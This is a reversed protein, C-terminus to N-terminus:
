ALKRLTQDLTDGEAKKGLPIRLIGDNTKRPIIHVHFHPIDQGAAKFNNQVINIGDARLNDKLKTALKKVIGFIGGLEPEPMHSITEYHTKPIVLTHGESLPNIDLFALVNTDEYVKKAPIKGAAILCFICDPIRIM